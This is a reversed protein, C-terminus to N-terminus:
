PEYRDPQPTGTLLFILDDVTMTVWQHGPNARGHRKHIIIGAAADDNGAQLHAQRIWDALATKTTNKCEIALRHGHHRIGAIDGTDKAGTRVKRDIRDDVLQALHNAIQREFTAGAKKASTRNRKRATTMPPREPEDEDEPDEDWFDEEDHMDLSRRYAADASHEAPHM